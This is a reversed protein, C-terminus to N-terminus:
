ISLPKDVSAEAFASSAWRLKLSPPPNAGSSFRAGFLLILYLASIYIMLSIFFIITNATKNADIPEKPVNLAYAIVGVREIDLV